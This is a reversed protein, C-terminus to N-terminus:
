EYAFAFLQMLTSSSDWTEIMTETEMMLPQHHLCDRFHRAGVGCHGPQDGSSVESILAATFVKVSINSLM